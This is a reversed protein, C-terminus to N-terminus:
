KNLLFCLNKREHCFISLNSSYEIEVLPRLSVGKEASQDVLCLM